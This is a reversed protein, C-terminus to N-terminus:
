SQFLLIFIIRVYTTSIIPVIMDFVSNHNSIILVSYIGNKLPTYINQPLTNASLTTISM